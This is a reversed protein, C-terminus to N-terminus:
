RRGKISYVRAPAKGTRRRVRRALGAKTLMTAAVEETVGYSDAARKVIAREAPSLSTIDPVKESM